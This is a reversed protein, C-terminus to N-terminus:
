RSEKDWVQNATRYTDKIEHISLYKRISGETTLKSYSSTYKEHNGWSHRKTLSVTGDLPSHKLSVQKERWIDSVTM